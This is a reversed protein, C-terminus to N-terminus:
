AADTRSGLPLKRAEAIRDAILAIFRPHDGVTKPRLLRANGRAAAQAGEIDIGYLVEIHDNIFGVPTVVVTKAGATTADAIAAEVSPGLQAPSRPDDSPNSDIYAFMPKDIGLECAVARVTTEVQRVYGTATGPLAAVSRSVFIWAAESRQQENLSITEVSIREVLAHVFEPADHWGRIYEVVPASLGAHRAAVEVLNRGPQAAAVDDFPDLMVTVARGVGDATLMGFVQPLYPTWDRMGVYIPTQDANRGVLEQELAKAQLRVSSNYPSGGITQYRAYEEDLRDPHVNAGRYRNELFPRVDGLRGPAGSGVLLVATDELTSRM